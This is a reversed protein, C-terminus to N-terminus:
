YYDSSHTRDGELPIWPENPTITDDPSTTSPASPVPIQIPIPGGASGFKEMRVGKNSMIAEEMLAEYEALVKQKFLMWVTDNAFYGAPCPKDVIDSHRLLINGNLFANKREERTMGAVLNSNWIEQAALRQTSVMSSESYTVDVTKNGYADKTGKISSPNVEIGITFLNPDVFGGKTKFIRKATETYLYANPKNAAEREAATAYGGAGYAVETSPMYRGIDGTPGVGLQTSAQRTPDRYDDREWDIKVGEVSSVYATWHIVIARVEILPTGPRDYFPTQLFYNTINLDALGSPDIKRLPNNGCYAYWNIGSRAADESIFRGVEPLYYRNM